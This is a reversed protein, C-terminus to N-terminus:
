PSRPFDVTVVLGGEEPAEARVTGGHAAAVSRVVALGIGAGRRATRATGHRRFPEFLEPVVEPPVVPGSSAV